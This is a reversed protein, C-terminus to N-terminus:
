VRVLLLIKVAGVRGVRPREKCFIHYLRTFALVVELSAVRVPLAILSLEVRLAVEVVSAAEVAAIRGGFRTRERLFARQLSLLTELAPPLRLTSFEFLIYINTYTILVLATEM